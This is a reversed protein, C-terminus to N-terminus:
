RLARIFPLLRERCAEDCEPFQLLFQAQQRCRSALAADVQEQCLSEFGQWTERYLAARAQPEMNEIARQEATLSRVLVILLLIVLLGGWLLVHRWPSALGEPEADGPLKPQPVPLSTTSPM